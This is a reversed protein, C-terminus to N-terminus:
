GLVNYDGRLSTGFVLAALLLVGPGSCMEDLPRICDPNWGGAGLISNRICVSARELRAPADPRVRSRRRGRFTGPQAV